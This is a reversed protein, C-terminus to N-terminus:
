AMRHLSSVWKFLGQHQSINLAPSPSSLPHSPQIADSVWHVPNSHVRPTPSPCPPRSQQPEHLQLSDSMVSCSFQVSSLHGMGLLSLPLSAWQLSCQSSPSPYLYKNLTIPGPSGLALFHSVYHKLPQFVIHSWHAPWWKAQSFM